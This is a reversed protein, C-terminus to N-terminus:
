VFIGTRSKRIRICEGTIRICLRYIRSYTYSFNNKIRIIPEGDYVELDYILKKHIEKADNNRTNIIEEDEGVAFARWNRSQIELGLGYNVAAISLLKLGEGFQGASFDESAKTSHMYFLNSPIFGVGNDAFRVAKIKNRHRMAKEREVWKNDVLFHLYCRTGKADAPLHNQFGDLCIRRIGWNQQRYDDLLGPGDHKTEIIEGSPELNLDKEYVEDLEESRRLLNELANECNQILANVNYVRSDNEEAQEFDDIVPEASINEEELNTNNKGNFVKRIMEAIKSFISKKKEIEILEMSETETKEPENKEIDADSPFSYRMPVRKQLENVFKEMRHYDDNTIGEIEKIDDDVWGFEFEFRRLVDQIEKLAITFKIEAEKYREKEVM